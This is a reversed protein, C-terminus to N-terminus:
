ARIPLRHCFMASVSRHTIPATVDCSQPLYARCHGNRAAIWCLYCRSLCWPVIAIARLCSTRMPVSGSAYRQARATDLSPVYSANMTVFDDSCLMEAGATKVTVQGGAPAASSGGSASAADPAAWYFRLQAQWAAPQGAGPQVGAAILEQVLAAAQQDARHLAALTARQEASLNGQQLASALSAAFDQYQEALTSLAAADEAPYM